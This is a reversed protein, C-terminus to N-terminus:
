EYEDSFMGDAWSRDNMKEDTTKAPPPKSAEDDRHMNRLIGHFYKLPEGDIRDEVQARYMVYMAEFLMAINYAGTMMQIEFDSIDPILGRITKAFAPDILHDPAPVAVEDALENEVTEFQANHTIRFKIAGIKRGSRIAEYEFKLDTIEALELQCRDIVYRKFDYFKEYRGKEVGLYERLDTLRIERFAVPRGNNVGKLPLFQRLLEYFRISYTSKLHVVQSLNYTTFHSKVQLLYPKLEPSISFEVHGLDPNFRSHSFWTVILFGKPNDPEKITIASTMLRLCIKDIDRYLNEKAIGTISVLENITIRYHKFDEDDPSLQGLVALIVKQDRLKLRNGVELLRVETLKHAKTVKLKDIDTTIEPMYFSNLIQSDM